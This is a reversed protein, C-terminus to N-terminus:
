RKEFLWWKPKRPKIKYNSTIYKRIHEMAEDASDTLLVLNLDEPSITQQEAMFHLYDM